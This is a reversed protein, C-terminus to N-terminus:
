DIFIVLIPLVDILIALLIAGVGAAKNKKRFNYKAFSIIYMTSWIIFIIAIYKIM